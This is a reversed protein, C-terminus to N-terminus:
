VSEIYEECKKVSDGVEPLNKSCMHEWMNKDRGLILSWNYHKCNWCLSFSGRGPDIETIM